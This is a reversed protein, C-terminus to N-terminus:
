GSYFVLGDQISWHQKLTATLPTSKNAVISCIVDMVTEDIQQCSRLHTMLADSIPPLLFTTAKVFLSAPLLTVDENDVDGTDHDARQSLSDSFHRPGYWHHWIIIFMTFRRSAQCHAQYHRGLTTSILYHMRM